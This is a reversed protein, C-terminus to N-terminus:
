FCKYKFYLYLSASSVVCFSFLVIDQYIKNNGEKSVKDDRTSKKLSSNLLPTIVCSMFSKKFVLIKKKVELM